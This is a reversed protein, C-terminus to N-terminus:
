RQENERVLSAIAKKYLQWIVFVSCGFLLLAGIVLEYFGPMIDRWIMFAINIVM